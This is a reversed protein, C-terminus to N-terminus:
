YLLPEQRNDWFYLIVITNNNIQYFFSTQKSIFGIRVNKSLPSSKFMEPTAAVLTLIKEVKHLFADAITPNFKYEITDFIAQLTFKATDTLVIKLM